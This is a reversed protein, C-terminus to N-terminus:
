DQKMMVIKYGVTELIWPIALTIVRDLNCYHESLITDKSTGMNAAYTKGYVLEITQAEKK